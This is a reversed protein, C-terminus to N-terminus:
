KDAVMLEIPNPVAPTRETCQFGDTSAERNNDRICKSLLLAETQHNSRNVCLM